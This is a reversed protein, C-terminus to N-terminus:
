CVGFFFLNDVRVTSIKPIFLDFNEIPAEQLQEKTKGFLDEAMATDVSRTGNIVDEPVSTVMKGYTPTTEETEGEPIYTSMFKREPNDVSPDATITLSSEPQLVSTCNINMTQWIPEYSNTGSKKLYYHLTDVNEFTRITFGYLAQVSSVQKLIEDTGNPKVRHISLYSFGSAYYRNGNSDIVENVYNSCLYDNNSEVFGAPISINNDGSDFVTDIAGKIVGWIPLTWIMVGNILRSNLNKYRM